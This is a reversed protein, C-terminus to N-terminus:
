VNICGLGIFQRKALERRHKRRCCYRDTLFQQSVGEARAGLDVETVETVETRHKGRKVCNEHPLWRREGLERTWSGLDGETVETDETRHKGM